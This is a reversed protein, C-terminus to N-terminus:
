GRNKDRFVAPTFGVIKVFLRIFYSYDDYGLDAAIEKVSRSSHFLLRKAELIIRQQIHVSVSTGTTAKVCENLYATSINLNRAYEVPSKVERFNKELVTKFARTVVEFRNFHGAPEARTLYQSAILAILTNCCEKFIAQHMKKEKKAALKMCLAATESLIALTATDVTLPKVPALNQLTSLFEPRINDETIISTSVFAQEFAILRHVQDPGIFVISSPGISYTQFDIEIHTQGQEQIIFTYGGDRHARGVENSDPPGDFAERMMMIGQFTGEPLTNVPIRKSKGPM